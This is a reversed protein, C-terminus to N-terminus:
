QILSNIKSKVKNVEAHKNPDHSTLAAFFKQRADVNHLMDLYEAEKAEDLAKREYYIETTQAASPYKIAAKSTPTPAAAEEKEM